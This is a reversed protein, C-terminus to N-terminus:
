KEKMYNGSFKSTKYDNDQYIGERKLIKIIAILFIKFDLFISWNDIYWIDLDFKKQWTNANRGNIGAWGVLGPRVNHRRHQEDNYLNLYEVLLPRPGIISMEGILVNWFQPLEDISWSRLFIGMKTIREDDPLLKGYKDFSNMMTRFKLLTFIREKYGPRQQRFIVPPGMLLRICIAIM